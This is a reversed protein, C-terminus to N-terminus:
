KIYQHSQLADFGGLFSSYEQESDRATKLFHEKDNVSEKVLQTEKCYVSKRM